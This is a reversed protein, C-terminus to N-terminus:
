EFDDKINDYVHTTTVANSFLVSIMFNYFKNDNSEREENEQKKLRGDFDTGNLWIIYLTAYKMFYRSFRNAQKFNLQM